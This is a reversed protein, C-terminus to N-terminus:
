ELAVEAMMGSLLTAGPNTGGVSKLQRSDEYLKSVVKM